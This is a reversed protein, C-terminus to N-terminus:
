DELCLNDIVAVEEELLYSCRIYIYSPHVILTYEDKKKIYSKQPKLM